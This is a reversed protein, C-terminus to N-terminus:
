KQDDTMNQALNEAMEAQAEPTPQETVMQIAAAMLEADKLRVKEQAKSSTETMAGSQM